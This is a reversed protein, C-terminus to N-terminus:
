QLLIHAPLSAQPRSRPWPMGCARSSGTRWGSWCPWSPGEALRPHLGERPDRARRVERRRGRVAVQVGAEALGSLYAEADDVPSWPILNRLRQDLPFVTLREGGEETLFHATLRERPIGSAIFARDDMFVYHIGAAVLDPVIQPEWVRETLWLGRPRAGFRREIRESLATVQAVRDEGPIAALIPEYLGGTLVEVQGRSVMAGLRDLYSRDASEMWTLLPGSVHLAHRFWPAQELATLLPRYAARAVEEIIRPDNGVPQHNHLVVVFQLRKM